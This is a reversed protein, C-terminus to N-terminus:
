GEKGGSQRILGQGVRILEEGTKRWSDCIADEITAGSGIVTLDASVSGSVVRADWTGDFRIQAGGVLMGKEDYVSYAAPEVYALRKFEFARDAITITKMAQREIEFLTGGLPKGPMVM